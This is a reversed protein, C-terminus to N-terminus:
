STAREYEPASITLAYHTDGETLAANGGVASPVIRELLVRGFGDIPGTAGNGTEHWTLRLAAGGDTVTEGIEATVRVAGGDASSDGRAVAICLEYLALGVHLAANPSLYCDPGDFAVRRVSGLYPVVQTDIL